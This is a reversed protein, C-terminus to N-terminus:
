HLLLKIGIIAVGFLVGFGTRVVLERGTHESRIGLALEAAIITAIAVGVAISVAVSLRAGVAWFVLVVLLPVCAGLIVALEHVLAARMGSLTFAEGDQARQGTFVSYARALWYVIVAVLVAGATEAYTERGPSEAALLTAVLIVGYVIGGPNEAMCSNYVV